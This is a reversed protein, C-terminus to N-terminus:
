CSRCAPQTEASQQQQQLRVQLSLITIIDLLHGPEGTLAAAAAAAAAAIDLPLLALLLV